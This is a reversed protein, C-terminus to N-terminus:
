DPSSTAIERPVPSGASFGEIRIEAAHLLHRGLALNSGYPRDGLVPHGLHALTVRIQHRLGTIPQAEILTSEPGPELPRIRTIAERGGEQVIRMRAGRHALRLVVELPEGLRGHVRAVYRKLVRRDSFAERARRWAEPDIAFVLVGSTGTDLRHVVGSQVGGEGVGNMGPYRALVANLVTGTEDFDLPHTAVGAPKDVAVLGEAEALVRLSPELSAIPGKSPHRFPPLTLADGARLTAGKPAPAGNIRVGGRQLLRRGYRRSLGLNRSLFVDLRAGAEAEPVRIEIEGTM